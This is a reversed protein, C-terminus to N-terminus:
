RRQEDQSIAESRAVALGPRSATRIEQPARPAFRSTQGSRRQANEVAHRLKEQRQWYRHNLLSAGGRQVKEGPLPEMGQTRRLQAQHLRRAAEKADVLAAARRSSIGSIRAPVMTVDPDLIAAAPASAVMDPRDSYATNGGADVHKHITQAPVDAAAFFFAAACIRCLAIRIRRRSNM